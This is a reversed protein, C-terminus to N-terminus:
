AARKMVHLRRRGRREDPEFRHVFQERLEMGAVQSAVLTPRTRAFGRLFDVEAQFADVSFPFVPDEAVAAAIQESQRNVERELWGRPDDPAPAAALGAVTNLADLFVQRLRPEAM